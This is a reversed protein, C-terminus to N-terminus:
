RRQESDQGRNSHTSSKHREGPKGAEACTRCVHWRRCNDGFTCTGENWQYCVLSYASTNRGNNSSRNRAGRGRGQNGSRRSNENGGAQNRNNIIAKNIVFERAMSVFDCDWSIKGQELKIMVLNHFVRAETWPVRSDLIKFIAHLLQSRGAQEAGKSINIIHTFCATFKALPINDCTVDELDEEYAITYPWLETKVVERLKVDKGSKVKRRRRRSTSSRVESDTGSDTPTSDEDVPFSSGAQKLRFAARADSEVKQERPMVNKLGLLDLNKLAERSLGESLGAAAQQDQFNKANLKDLLVSYSRDREFEVRDKRSKSTESRLPPPLSYRGAAFHQQQQQQPQQQQQQPQLQQQQFPLGPQM